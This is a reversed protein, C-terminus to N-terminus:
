EQGQASKCLPSLKGNELYMAKFHTSGEPLTISLSTVARSIDTMEVATTKGSEDFYTVVLTSANEPIDAGKAVNVFYGSGDNNDLSIASGEEIAYITAHIELKGFGTQKFSYYRSVPKNPLYGNKILSVINNDELFWAAFANQTDLVSIQWVKGEVVERIANEIQDATINGDLVLDIALEDFYSHDHENMHNEDNVNHKPANEAFFGSYPIHVVDFEDHNQGFYLHFIGASESDDWTTDSHLCIGDIWFLTWEHPESKGTSMNYGNGQVSWADIGAKQLLLQFLESYGACVAKGDVLAGFASQHNPGLEYTVTKCVVDHLWVARRYQTDFSNEGDPILKYMKDIIKDAKRQFLQRKKNINEIYEEPDSTCPQSYSLGDAHYCEGYLEYIPYLTTVRAEGNELLYYSYSYAMSFWFHEPYDSMYANLLYEVEDQTIESKSGSYLKIETDLREIGNVVADYAYLYSQSKESEALKQRAYGNKVPTESEEASLVATEAAPAPEPIAEILRHERANAMVSMCLLTATISFFLRFLKRIKM